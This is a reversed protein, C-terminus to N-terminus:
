DEIKIEDNKVWLDNCDRKWRKIECIEIFRMLKVLGKDGFRMIEIKM